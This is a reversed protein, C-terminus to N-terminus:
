RPATQRIPRQGVREGRKPLAAALRKVAERLIDEAHTAFGLRLAAPPSGAFTFRRSPLTAVGHALARESWAEVDVGPAGAWVAMGGAPVDLELVTGLRKRLEHVFLDRRSEYIRRMRRAHRLVEGDELLEAVAREVVTDGQRDNIVRLSALKEIVLEPAVVFGLRLAPALVKSLTGFYVVVGDRDASALPLVPRGDYHFDFDYDDEFIAIRQKRALELLALRRPAALTVTTPYQHHPTLYVARVPRTATLAALEDVRMGGADVRIPVLTAGAAALAAWAPSYGLAEVAVVDGPRLLARAALDLAQQSGRTVLVSDATAAVGRLASLMTALQTRLAVDGRPDAYGLAAPRLARRYARAIAAVPVLSLDPVGSLLAITGRPLQTYAQPVRWPAPQAPLDFGAKM